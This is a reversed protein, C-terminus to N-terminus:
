KRALIWAAVDNIVAADVNGPVQYEGPTSKGTGVIFPHNLNPYSILRVDSRNGLAMKWIQFDTMSVQYDREGQLILMPMQLSRAVAVQDYARLDLWYPAPISLPLESPPTAPTLNPDKVRAVQAQVQAVGKQTEPSSAQLGAVYTVQELILDELPRAPAALMVLGKLRADAAGIRPALMAGLSHGAIFVRNPDINPLTRLYEAAALADDMAEEKVTLSQMGAMKSAYVLTRKDYRLVAIGRSALGGALDRFPKLPGITEDRDHAGSGHVLVVAPFPGSGNPVSLTGPLQWEPLGFKVEQDKFSDPRVYAAPPGPSPAETKAPQFFLGAIQKNSDFVVRIDITAKEFETTVFVADYQQVKETRTSVQRKYAGVQSQLAEWTQKMKDPPFASKMTPDFYKGATAYDGKSMAGVMELARATIDDLAGPTANAATPAPTVAVTPAVPVPTPIPTAVQQCALLLAVLFAVPIIAFRPRM